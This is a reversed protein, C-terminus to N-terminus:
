TLKSSKLGIVRPHLYLVDDIGDNGLLFQKIGLDVQDKGAKLVIPWDIDVLKGSRGDDRLNGTLTPM